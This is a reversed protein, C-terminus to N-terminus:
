NFRNQKLEGVASDKSLSAQEVSVDRDVDGNALALHVLIAGCAFM